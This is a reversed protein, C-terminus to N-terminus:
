AAEGLRIEIGLELKAVLTSLENALERAHRRGADDGDAFISVSEPKACVIASALKAMHPASGAAWAGLGTAQHVSLADEIGETIALGWMGHNMAAVAIPMGRPSAVMIKNPTVDAKGTGDSKIMTLHVASVDRPQGLGGPECEDALAFAAIMAPPKDKRAPLFALTPPLPGGYGRAERLYREAITGAIPQRLSSWLYRAYARRGKQYKDDNSNGKTAPPTRTPTPRLQEGTLTKVAEVFTVGDLHQVLDIIDGGANCVRCHWLQKRVNVAFRDVGCGCKPCAGVLEQGIRKLTIGRRALESEVAVVKALSILM